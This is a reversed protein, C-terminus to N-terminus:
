MSTIIKTITDQGLGTQDNLVYIIEANIWTYQNSFHYVSTGNILLTQYNNQVTPVVNNALLGTNDLTTSAEYIYLSNSLNSHAPHYEFWISGVQGTENYNFKNLQYGLPVYKPFSGNIGTRLNAYSLELDYKFYVGLTGIILIFLLIGTSIYLTKIYLGHKKTSRNPKNITQSKSEALGAASQYLNNDQSSEIKEINRDHISTTTIPPEASLNNIIKSTKDKLTQTRSIISDKVLSPSISQNALPHNRSIYSTKKITQVSSKTSLDPKKLAKRMLTRSKHLERKIDAAKSHVLKSTNTVTPKKIQIPRNLVNNATLTFDNIFHPKQAQVKQILQETRAPVQAIIEQFGRALPKGTLADYKKGNLIIIKPNRV